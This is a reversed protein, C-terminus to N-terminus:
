KNYYKLKRLTNIVNNKNNINSKFVIYTNKIRSIVYYEENTSIEYFSFEESDKNMKDVVDTYLKNANTIEEKYLDKALTTSDLEVYYSTIDNKIALYSTKSFALKNTYDSVEYGDKKMINNYDSSSIIKTNVCATMIFTLLMLTILKIKKM